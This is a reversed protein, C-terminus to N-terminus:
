PRSGRRSRGRASRLREEVIGYARGAAIGARRMTGALSRSGGPQANPKLLARGSRQAWRTGDPVGYRLLVQSMGRGYLFHQRVMPYLGVRHTYDAVSEPVFGLRRGAVLLSWSLAIDECRILDEDFGEVQEFADRRIALSGSLTYPVGLFTPLSDPTAPPRVGQLRADLGVDNLRGSVADFTALAQLLPELWDDHVLDDSDCFAFADGTAHTAGANRAHAAGRRDAAHVIRVRGDDVPAIAAALDSQAAPGAINCALIVEVPCSTTQQLVARVQAVLADDIRGVPIIVSATRPTV